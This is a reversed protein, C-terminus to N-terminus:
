AVAPNPVSGLNPDIELKSFVYLALLLMVGLGLLIDTAFPEEFAVGGGQGGGGIPDEPDQTPPEVIESGVEYKTLTMRISMEGRARYQFISGAEAEHFTQFPANQDIRENGALIISLHGRIPSDISYFVVPNGKEDQKPVDWKVTDGGELILDFEETWDSPSIAGRDVAKNSYELHVAFTVRTGEKIRMFFESSQGEDSFAEISNASLTVNGAMTLSQFPSPSSDMRVGSVETWEYKEEGYDEIIGIVDGEASPDIATTPPTYVTESEEDSEITEADQVEEVEEPEELDDYEIDGIDGENQQDIWAKAANVANQYGTSTGFTMQTGATDTVTWEYTDLFDVDVQYYYGDYYIRQGVPQPTQGGETQGGEGGISESDHTEGFEGTIPM